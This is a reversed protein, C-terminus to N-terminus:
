NKFIDLLIAIKMPRPCKGLIWSVFQKCSVRCDFMGGSTNVKSTVYQSILQNLYCGTATVLYLLYMHVLFAPDICSVMFCKWLCMLNWQSHIRITNQPVGGCSMIFCRFHIIGRGRGTASLCYRLVSPLTAALIM